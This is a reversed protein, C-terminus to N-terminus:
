RFRRPVLSDNAFFRMAEDTSQSGRAALRRLLRGLASENWLMADAVGAPPTAPRATVAEVYWTKLDDVAAKLGRVDHSDGRESAEIVRELCQGTALGSTGAVTRGRRQRALAHWTALADLEARVLGALDEEEIGPRVFRVPCSWPRGSDDEPAPEPFDELVPGEPRALLALAAAIVRHQFTADGPVGLPRGLAFPVWLARPPAMAATHERVLSIGTTALGESELFHALASM